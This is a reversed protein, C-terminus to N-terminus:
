RVLWGTCTPGLWVDVAVKATDYTSLRGDSDASDIFDMEAGDTIRRLRLIPGQYSAAM